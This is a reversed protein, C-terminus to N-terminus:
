RRDLTRRFDRLRHFTIMNREQAFRRVCPEDPVSNSLTIYRHTQPDRRITFRSLGGPMETWQLFRQTRGGDEVRLIIAKNPVPASHLRLVNWLEGSPAAVVNGELVGPCSLEGWDAPVWDRSFRTKDSMQWSAANLLDSGVEASIV